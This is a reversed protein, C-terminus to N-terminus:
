RQLSTTNSPSNKHYLWARSQKIHGAQVTSRHCMINFFLFLLRSIFHYTGRAWRRGHRMGQCLRSLSYMHNNPKLKYINLDRPYFLTCWGVIKICQVFIFTIYDCYFHLTASSKYEWRGCVVNIHTDQEEFSLRSFLRNVLQFDLSM